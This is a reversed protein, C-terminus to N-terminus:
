IFLQLLVELLIMFKVLVKNLLSLMGKEQLKGSSILNSKLKHVYLVNSITEVFGNKTKIKIDCKEM